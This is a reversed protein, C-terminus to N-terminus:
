SSLFDLIAQTTIEHAKKSSDLANDDGKAWKLLPRISFDSREVGEILYTQAQASLATFTEFDSRLKGNEKISKESLLTLTPKATGEITDKTLKGDLNICHTIRPDVQTTLIAAQGGLGIGMVILPENEHLKIHDIIQSIDSAQLEAKQSPALHDFAEKESPLEKSSSTYPHNISIVLYGHSTLEELLPRYEAPDNELGHSFLIVGLVDVHEPHTLTKMAFAHTRPAVLTGSLRLNSQGHGPNKLPTFIDLSLNGEVTDGVIPDKRNVGHLIKTSHGVYYNGTLKPLVASLPRMDKFKEFATDEMQNLKSNSLNGRMSDIYRLVTPLIPTEYIENAAEAM